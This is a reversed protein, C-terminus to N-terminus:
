GLRLLGARCTLRLCTSCTNLIRVNEESKIQAARFHHYTLRYDGSQLKVLSHVDSAKLIHGERREVSEPTLLYFCRGINFKCSFHKVSLYIVRCQQPLEDDDRLLLSLYLYVRGFHYAKDVDPDRRSTGAYEVAEEVVVPCHALLHGGSAHCHIDRRKRGSGWGCETTSHTRKLNRCSQAPVAQLCM